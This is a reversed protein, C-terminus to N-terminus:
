RLESSAVPKAAVTPQTKEAEVGLQAEAALLPHEDSHPPGVLATRIQPNPVVRLFFDVIDRPSM